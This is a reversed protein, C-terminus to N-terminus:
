ELVTKLITNEILLIKFVNELCCIYKTQQEWVRGEREKKGVCVCLLVPSSKLTQKIYKQIKYFM